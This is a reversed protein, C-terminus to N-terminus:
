MLLSNLLNAVDTHWERGIVVAESTDNIDTEPTEAEPSEPNEDFDSVSAARIEHDAHEDGNMLSDTRGRSRKVLVWGEEDKTETATADRIATAHNMTSWNDRVEYDTYIACWCNRELDKYVDDDDNDYRDRYANRRFNFVWYKNDFSDDPRSKTMSFIMRLAEMSPSSTSKRSSRWPKEILVCAESTRRGRVHLETSRLVATTRADPM